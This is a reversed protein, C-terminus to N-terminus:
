ALGLVVFTQTTPGKGNFKIIGSEVKWNQQWKAREAESDTGWQRAKWGTFDKGNFLMQFGRPAM